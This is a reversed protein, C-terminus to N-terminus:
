SSLLGEVVQEAVREDKYRVTRSRLRAVRTAFAPEALLRDLHGAIQDATDREGDGVLGLGHYQVRAANGGMDTEFGCYVLVPVGTHICEEITGIGGHTIALDARGLVDVQPLWSFVQVNAPPSPVDPTATRRGLSLVLDWDPRGAVAEFIRALLGPRTSFWSGFGAYLLRRRRNAQRSAFVAELRARDAPPMRDERGELVMPGVYHVHPPPAHPFEYELAHLSLVPLGRYSFPILWQGFDIYRDLDVGLDTAMERLVSVRDCGARRLRQSAMRLWKRGRLMWWRLALGPASGSWGRGPCVLHHPPPLGRRRWISAFSNLLATRVGTAIAGVIQEHLEIDILILDPDVDRITDLLSGAASAQAAERRRRHRTAWREWGSRQADAALFADYGSPPLRRFAIGQAAVVPATEPESVFVVRHGAAELRRSLELSSYLLAEFGSTVCLITAM